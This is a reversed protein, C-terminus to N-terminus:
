SRAPGHIPLRLTFTTGTNVKSEVEIAGHHGQVIGYTVFLGLGTGNPKTSFFPDFIRDIDEPLIGCGNDNFRIVIENGQVRAVIVLKGSRQMAAQANLTLNMFVQELQDKSGYISPLTPVDLEINMGKKEFFKRNLDVIRELIRTLDLPQLDPGTNRKGTFELLQSVIRRIREVSEQIIEIGRIDIPYNANISEVIDDLTVTIPQLPNNIEHAINAALRGISALKESRVLMQQASQLEATRAAVMDELHQAYNVQIEHLIANRLALAAQRGVGKFLRLHNENYEIESSALLLVGFTQEAHHLPIAMGSAFDTMLPPSSPWVHAEPQSLISDVIVTGDPEYSDPIQEKRRSFSLEIQGDDDLQYIATFEGPLLDFVINLVLQLLEHRELHQILDESMQLLSALEYSRRQLADELQRAKMKSQARAVLEQPAFPKYLYDDAGLNLGLAVDAPERANATVLITPINTTVPNERLRRLVEFGNMGPMRIDLLILDPILREAAALASIGDNVAELQYGEREFIRQLMITTNVEDDAVLVLPPNHKVVM